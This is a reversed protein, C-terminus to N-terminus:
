YTVNNRSSNTKQSQFSLCSGLVSGFIMINPAMMYPAYLNIASLSVVSFAIVSITFALIKQSYVPDTKKIQLMFRFIFYISLTFFLLFLSVGVIGTDILLTLYLNHPDAYYEGNKDIIENNFLIQASKFSDLGTGFLFNKTSVSFGVDWIRLRSSPLLSNFSFRPIGILLISIFILITLFGKMLNKKLMFYLFLSTGFAIYGTRRFSFVLFFYAPFTLLAYVTCAKLYSWSKPFFLLVSFTIPLFIALLNGFLPDDRTASLMFSIKKNQFFFDEGFFYQYLSDLGMYLCLFFFAAILIDLHRKKKVFELSPFFLLLSDYSLHDLAKLSNQVDISHFTKFILICYFLIFLYKYKFKKLNSDNYAGLYYFFVGAIAMVSSIERLAQGLPFLLIYTVVGLQLLRFSVDPYSTRKLLVLPDTPITQM